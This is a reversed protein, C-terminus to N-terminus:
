GFMINKANEIRAKLDKLWKQIKNLDNSCDAGDIKEGLRYHSYAREYFDKFPYVSPNSYYSLNKQLQISKLDKKSQEFDLPEQYADFLRPIGIKTSVSVIGYDPASKPQQLGNSSASINDLYPDAGLGYGAIKLWLDWLENNLDNFRNLPNAVGVNGEKISQVLVLLNDAAKDIDHLRLNIVDKYQKTKENTVGTKKEKTPLITTPKTEKEKVSSSVPLHATTEPSAAANTNKSASDQTQSTFSAESSKPKKFYNFGILGIAAACIIVGGIVLYKKSSNKNIHKAQQKIEEPSGTYSTNSNRHTHEEHHPTAPHHDNDKQLDLVDILKSLGRAYDRTFDIHQLRRLRLPIACETLLVPIVTKGSEIAYSVEDMVNESGVSSQSLIVIIIPATNLAKEISEDWRNGAKIDFQDLWIQAGSNKLDQSLKVAFDSDSRSYSLFIKENTM